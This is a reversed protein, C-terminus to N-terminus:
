LCRIVAERIEKAVKFMGSVEKELFEMPYYRSTIYSAEIAGITNINEEFIRYLDPCLDKIESFLRKLSHTKPFDGIKMAFLYKMYLQIGQEINFASLNYIGNRFLSEANDLFKDANDKLYDYSM